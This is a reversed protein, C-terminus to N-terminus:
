AERAEAAHHATRRSCRSTRGGSAKLVIDIDQASFGRELMDRKLATDIEAQRIMRWQVVCVIAFGVVCGLILVLFGFGKDPGFAAVIEQLM